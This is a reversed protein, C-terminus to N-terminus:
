PLLLLLLIGENAPPVGEPQLYETYDFRVEPALQDKGEHVWVHVGYDRKKLIKYHM